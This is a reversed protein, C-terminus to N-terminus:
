RLFQSSKTFRPISLTFTTGKGYESRVDIRGGHAEALEKAITLGLGLGGESSKYFREFVFPIDEKRIGSGTDTIEIHSENGSEGARMLVVGGRETAKLANSMLNIVIQSLKDPDADITAEDSCAFELRVGKDLFLKDFRDKINGLFPKLAVPKRHLELVSAEARSLEEIGEIIHKLRNTEEHLSLLREKDLTILGDLMGEIEGQMASLPTRLEHAINSTLKRRLEEQIELNTAMTNFARSLDSIEDSGKVAVRSKINGESINTAALTLKKIPDTMRKSYIFSLLVSLGGLVFIVVILFRDSRMMFIAEKREDTRKQIPRIDISGIGQGRLFLPYSTYPTHSTPQDDEFTIGAVASIRREMLPPLHAMARRTTLIERDESDRIMIEYGLLLAWIANEHLSEAQWGSYREYSGEIAAMVRYIRDETEGKLYEEFDKIILARLTLAASLSIVSISLLLILFKIWLSRIMGREPFSIGSEM